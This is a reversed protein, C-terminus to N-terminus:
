SNSSADVKADVQTEIQESEKKKDKKKDKDKDKEKDEKKEADKKEQEEKAKKERDKREKEAKDHDERRQDLWRREEEVWESDLDKLAGVARQTIFLSWLESCSVFTIDDCYVRVTKQWAWKHDVSRPLSCAPSQRRLRDAVWPKMEGNYHLLKASSSCTVVYPSISGYPGFKVGLGRGM